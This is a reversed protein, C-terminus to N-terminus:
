DRESLRSLGVGSTLQRKTKPVSKVMQLPLWPATRCSEPRRAAQAPEIVAFLSFCVKTARAMQGQGVLLEAGVTKRSPGMGFKRYCGVVLNQCAPGMVQGGQTPKGGDLKRPVVRMLEVFKGLANASRRASRYKAVRESPDNIVVVLVGLSGDDGELMDQLEIRVKAFHRQWVAQEPTMKGSIQDLASADIIRAAVQRLSNRVGM